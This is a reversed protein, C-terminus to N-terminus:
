LVTVTVAGGFAPVILPKAPIHKFSEVIKLEVPVPPVQDDLLVNIAVIFEIVPSTLATDTPVVVM